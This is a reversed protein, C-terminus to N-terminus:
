RAFSLGPDEPGDGAIRFTIHNADAWSVRGVLVPGNPQALTLLGQGFTSTGTFEQAKGNKTVKWDFKGDDAISLAVTTDTSPKATWNGAIKAGDPVKTDAATEPPATPPTAAGPATTAALAAPPSLQKLLKASLSDDPKLAVVQKYMAAAADTHGQSLYHYALVFRDGASKPDAECASELTRLQATYTDVDPYLGILTSWDWGPGVSLVAYLVGAAEDYRKLAFLCLARFEHLATDNPTKTLAQNALNLANDYQGQHFAERASDFTSVSQNTADEPAPASVTDIPQSYDYPAAGSDGVVAVPTVYYPNAYASYGMRMCRFRIGLRRAWGLGALGMGWAGWYPGRWGWAASAQGNWYGHVWGSHYAGYANYGYPRYGAAGYAHYGAAGWAGGAVGTREGAVAMGGRAGFAAETTSRGAVATGGPGVAAGARSHEVATGNPGTGVRTSSRGAVAGGDPGVAAGARGVDTFSRGGPTTVKVGGVGAAAEGGRPGVGARGAAGYDVTTGRPGTYSGTTAGGRMAASGGYAGERAGGGSYPNYGRFSSEGRSFTGASSFSPTRAFSEGGYGGRYGGSEFGRSGEFGGMGGRYGGAEFGRSGEFGGMGGRYGGGSFGMGGRAGGYGGGFSGGRFGGSFGGGGRFGGGFGRGHAVGAGVGAVAIALAIFAAARKKFQTM